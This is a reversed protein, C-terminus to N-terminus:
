AYQASLNRNWAGFTGLTSRKTGSAPDGIAIRAVDIEDPRPLSPNCHRSLSPVGREARPCGEDSEDPAPSRSRSSFLTQEQCM